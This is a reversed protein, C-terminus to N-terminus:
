KVGAMTKLEKKIAKAKEGKWTGANCLFYLVVSKASDEYFNDTIKNLSAMAELYPKAAYNVKQWDSYIERAIESLPRANLNEM